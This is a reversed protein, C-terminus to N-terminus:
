EFRSVEISLISKKRAFYLETKNISASTEQFITTVCCVPHPAFLTPGSVFIEGDVFKHLQLPRNISSSAVHSALARVSSAILSCVEFADHIEHCINEAHLKHKTRKILCFALRVPSPNITQSRLIKNNKRNLEKNQKPQTPVIVVTM